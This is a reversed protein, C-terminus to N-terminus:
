SFKWYDGVHVGKNEVGIYRWKLTGVTVNFILSLGNKAKEGFSQTARMLHGKLLIEAPRDVRLGNKLCRTGSNCM